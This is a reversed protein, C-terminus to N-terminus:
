DRWKSHTDALKTRDVLLQEVRESLVYNTINEQMWVLYSPNNELVWEITEHKYKGIPMDDGVDLMTAQKKIIPPKNAEAAIRLAKLRAIKQDITEKRKVSEKIMIIGYISLFGFLLM